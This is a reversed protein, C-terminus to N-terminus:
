GPLGPSFNLDVVVVRRETSILGVRRDPQILLQAIGVGPFSCWYTTPTTRNDEVCGVPRGKGRVISEVFEGWLQRRRRDREARTNGLSRRWAALMPRVRRHVVVVVRM